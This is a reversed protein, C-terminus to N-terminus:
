IKEKRRSLSPFSTLWKAGGFRKSTPVQDPERRPSPPQSVYTDPNEFLPNVAFQGTRPDTTETFSSPLRVEAAPRAPQRPVPNLNERAHRGTVGTVEVWNPYESHDNLDARILDLGVHTVIAVLQPVRADIQQLNLKELLDIATPPRLPKVSKWRGAIESVSSKVFKGIKQPRLGPDNIKSGWTLPDLALWALTTATVMAEAERIPLPAKSSPFCEIPSSTPGGHRKWAELMLEHSEPLQPLEARHLRTLATQVASRQMPNLLGLSFAATLKRIDRKAREGSLLLVAAAKRFLPPADQPGPIGWGGLKQPWHLPLGSQEMSRWLGPLALRSVELAARITAKSAGSFEEELQPGLSAAQSEIDSLQRLLGDNRRTVGKARMLASLKVRKVHRVEIQQDLAKEQGESSPAAALVFAWLTRDEFIKVNGRLPTRSVTYLEECLVVGHKSRMSKSVNPKLGLYEINYLYQESKQVSWAAAQDDGFLAFNM